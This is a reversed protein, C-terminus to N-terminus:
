SLHGHAAQAAQTLRDEQSRLQDTGQHKGGGLHRDLLRDERIRLLNVPNLFQLQDDNATKLFIENLEEPVMRVTPHGGAAVV